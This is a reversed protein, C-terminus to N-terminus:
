TVLRAELEIETGRLARAVPCDAKAAVAHAQFTAADLGPVRAKCKLKSATITPRGDLEAITVHAEVEIAEPTYGAKGLLLSLYQAFCGAHAAGLLEEPNTGTGAEFRSAFSYAGEFTGSGLRILGRGKKLRGEWRAYANRTPM